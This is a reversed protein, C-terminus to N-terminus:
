ALERRVARAFANANKSPTEHQSGNGFIHRWNQSPTTSYETATMYYGGTASMAETGGTQYAPLSTQQPNLATYAVGAPVSNLNIGHGTNPDDTSSDTAPGNQTKRGTLETNATTTPKFARYIIELEDRAPIYWDSHGGITLGSAWAFAPHATNNFTSTIYRGDNLLQSIAAPVDATNATKYQIGAATNGGNQGTARPALIVNYMTDEAYAQGTDFNHQGQLLRIQGVFFGGGLTDGPVSIRAPTVTNSTQTAIGAVNVARLVTTITTGTPLEVDPTNGSPFIAPFTLTAPSAQNTLPVFGPDASQMDIVAGAGNFV